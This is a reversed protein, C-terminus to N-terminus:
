GPRFSRHLLGCAAPEGAAPSWRCLLQYERRGRLAFTIRQRLQEGKRVYAIEYQRARLGGERLSRKAVVKGKLESALRQAVGDLERVVQPWLEARFPRVLRFVTVSVLESADAAPAARTERLSSQAQWDAPATFTFGPGRLV